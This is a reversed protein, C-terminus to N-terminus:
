CSVRCSVDELACFLWLLALKDSFFFRLAAKHQTQWMLSAVTQTMRQHQSLKYAVLDPLSEYQLSLRTSEQHLECLEHVFYIEWYTTVGRLWVSLRQREMFPLYRFVIGHRFIDESWPRLPPEHCHLQENQKKSNRRNLSLNKQDLINKYSLM